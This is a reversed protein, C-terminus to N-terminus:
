SGMCKDPKVPLRTLSQMAVFATEGLHAADEFSGIVHRHNRGTLYHNRAAGPMPLRAACGPM